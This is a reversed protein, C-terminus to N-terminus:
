NNKNEEGDLNPDALLEDLEEFNIIDDDTLEIPELDEPSPEPMADEDHIINDLRTPTHETTTPEASVEPTSAPVNAPTTPEGDNNRPVGLLDGLIQEFGQRVEEPAERVSIFAGGGARPQETGRSQRLNSPASPDRLLGMVHDVASSLILELDRRQTPNLNNGTNVHRRLRNYLDRSMRYVLDETSSERDQQPPVISKITQKTSQLNNSASRCKSIARRVRKELTSGLMQTLRSPPSVKYGNSMVPWGRFSVPQWTRDALMSKSVRQELSVRVSGNDLVDIVIRLTEAIPIYSRSM